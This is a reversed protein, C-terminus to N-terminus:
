QKSTYIDPRAIEMFRSPDKLPTFGFQEYLTHADRTALMIRRLGSFAPASFIYAMLQKSLGRGRYAPDIFVDALYAFTSLDTIMRAFGVQRLDEAFVGFTVSNEVSRQLTEPPIGKAWYSDNSIWDHIRTFDLRGKDTSFLFGNWTQEELFAM